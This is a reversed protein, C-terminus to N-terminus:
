IKDLVMLVFVSPLYLISALLLSRAATNTKLRTLQVGYLLFGLSFLLAGGTYILGEHGLLIPVFSMAILALSPLISQWLM